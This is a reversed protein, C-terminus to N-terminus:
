TLEKLYPQLIDRIKKKARFVRSKANSITIGTLEAIESYELGNYEKLIYAEKYEEDLLDIARNVLDLLEKQEYKQNEEYLFELYEESVTQKKNRKANLSLNRAITLLYGKINFKTTQNTVNKYFKIFTEQFIDEADDSYGLVKVCYAHVTSSYRDYLVRFAASADKQNGKLYEVLEEENYKTFNSSM